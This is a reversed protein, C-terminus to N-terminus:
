GRFRRNLAEAASVLAGIDAAAQRLKALREERQKRYPSVARIADVTADEMIMGAQACLVQILETEAAM